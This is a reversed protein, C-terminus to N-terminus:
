EDGSEAPREKKKGLETVFLTILLVIGGVTIFCDAINFVAFRMFVPELMDVVFGHVVRDIWNSLGGAMVAALALRQIKCPFLGRALCVGLFALLLPTLVMPVWQHDVLFSFAMGTNQVYRLQLVGPIFARAEGVAFNTLIWVKSLQDLILVGLAVLIMAAM